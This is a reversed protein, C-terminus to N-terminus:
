NSMEVQGLGTRRKRVHSIQDNTIVEVRLDYLPQTGLSHPWWLDPEEVAFRWDLLNEGDALEVEQLHSVTGGQGRVNAAPDLFTRILAKTSGHAQL